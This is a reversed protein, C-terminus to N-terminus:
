WDWMAPPVFKPALWSQNLYWNVAPSMTVTYREDVDEVCPVTVSVSAAPFTLALASSAKLVDRRSLTRAM